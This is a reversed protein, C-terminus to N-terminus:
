QQKAVQLILEAASDAGQEEQLLSGLQAAKSCVSENRIFGLISRLSKERLRGFKKLTMGVGLEKLRRAWFPQDAM